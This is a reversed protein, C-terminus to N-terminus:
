GSYHTDMFGNEFKFVGSIVPIKRIKIKHIQASRHLGQRRKTKLVVRHLIAITSLGGAAM